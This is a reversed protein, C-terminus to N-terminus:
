CKCWSKELVIVSNFITSDEYGHMYAIRLGSQAALMAWQAESREKGAMTVMMSLDAMASQWPVNTDPLVKEDILIRSDSAMASRLHQLIQICKADPWDHLIRRLYYFKAGRVTQEEFFNHGEIRVGPIGTLDKVVEPLDQLVLRGKLNPYKDRVELCQHGSGGGVDVFFVRESNDTELAVQDVENLSKIWEDSQFAKMVETMAALQEPHQALWAFSPLDTKFAKQFPTKSNDSIDAYDTEVLFDPFAQVAPGM